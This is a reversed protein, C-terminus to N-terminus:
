NKIKEVMASNVEWVFLGGGVAGLRDKKTNTINLGLGWGQWLPPPGKRVVMKIVKLRDEKTDTIQISECSGLSGGIAM